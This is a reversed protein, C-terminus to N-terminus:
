ECMVAREEMGSKARQWVDHGNVKCMSDAPCTSKV